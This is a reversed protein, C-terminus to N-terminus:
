VDDTEMLTNTALSLAAYDGTAAGNADVAIWIPVCNKAGSIISDGIEVPDGAIAAFLGAETLSLRASLDSGGVVSVTIPGAAAALIRGAAPKGFYVVAAVPAGGSGDILTTLRLSDLPSTLAPDAFFRFM